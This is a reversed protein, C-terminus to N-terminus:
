PAVVVSSRVQENYTPAPHVVGFCFGRARLGDVIDPVAAVTNAIRDHMLVVSGSRAGDVVRRTTEPVTIGQWDNADLDWLTQTMHLDSSISQVRADTDEFPPRWLQPSPAGAAVIRDTTRTLESRVDADLMQTLYPHTWTHNGVVHGDRAERAVVPALEPTIKSGMVFFTAAARKAALTDLLSATYVDPGDDFTMAVYGSRCGSPLTTTPAATTTPPPALSTIEYDDTVIQGVSLIAIGFSVATVNAPIPPLDLTTRRYTASAPQTTGEAWYEWGNPRLAYAEMVAPVNSKYWVSATYRQNPSTAPACAPSMTPVLKRDGDKYSTIQTKEAWSGTHPDTVRSFTSTNTGWGGTQFCDPVGDHDADTELSGNIVKPVAAVGGPAMLMIVGM